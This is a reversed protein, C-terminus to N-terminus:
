PHLKEIGPRDHGAWVDGFYQREKSYFRMLHSHTHINTHTHSVYSVNGMLTM